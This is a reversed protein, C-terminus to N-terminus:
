FSFDCESELNRMREEYRGKFILHLFKYGDNHPLDTEFMIRLFERHVDELLQYSETLVNISLEIKKDIIYEGNEMAICDEDLGPSYAERVYTSYLLTM